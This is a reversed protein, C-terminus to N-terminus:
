PAPALFTYLLGVAFTILLLGAFILYIGGDGRRFKVYMLVALALWIAAFLYSTLM